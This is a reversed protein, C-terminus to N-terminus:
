FGLQITQACGIAERIFGNLGIPMTDAVRTKKPKAISVHSGILASCIAAFLMNCAKIMRQDRATQNDITLFSGYAFADNM